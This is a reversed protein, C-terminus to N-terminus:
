SSWSPRSRRGTASPTDCAAPSTFVDGPGIGVWRVGEDGDVLGEVQRSEALFTEPDDHIHSPVHSRREPHM